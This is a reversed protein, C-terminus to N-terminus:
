QLWRGGDLRILEGTVYRLDFSLACVAAAADQPTGPRALPIRSEYRQRVAADVDDPWAVVGPLIGNVRVKPAMAVALVRVLQHLAGKSMLYSAYTALPRGEAHMDGFAVVSAGDPLSSRELNARLAQTLLFPAGANVQFDRHLDASSVTGVEGSHYSSANHVLVDVPENFSRAYKDIAAADMLDLADQRVQIAHGSARAAAICEDAAKQLEAASSNRTLALNCGREALAIACARGVRKAAGTVLALQTM